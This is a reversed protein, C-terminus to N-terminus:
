QPLERAFQPLLLFREIATASQEAGALAITALRRVSRIVPKRRGVKV